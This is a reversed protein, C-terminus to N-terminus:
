HMLEIADPAIKCGHNINKLANKYSLWGYDVCKDRAKVVDGSLSFITKGIPAISSTAGCDEIILCSWKGRNGDLSACIDAQKDLLAGRNRDYFVGALPLNMQNAWTQCFSEEGRYSFRIDSCILGTHQTQAACFMNSFYLEMNNESAKTKTSTSLLLITTTLLLFFNM